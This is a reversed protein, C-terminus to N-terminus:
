GRPEEIRRLLTIRYRPRVVDRVVTLGPIRRFWGHIVSAGMSGPEAADGATPATDHVSTGHVLCLDGGPAALRVLRWGVVEFEARSLYYFIEACLVLDFSGDLSATRIDLHRVDVRPDHAFRRRTRRIALSSFDVAVVRDCQGLLQSTFVGEGCGLDIASSYRRGELADLTARAREREYASTALRWPDPIVYRAEFYARVMWRQAMLIRKLPTEDAVWRRFAFPSPVPSNM